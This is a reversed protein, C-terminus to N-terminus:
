KRSENEHLTLINVPFPSAGGTYMQLIIKGTLKVSDIEEESLQWMTSVVGNENMAPLPEVGEQNEGYVTNVTPFTIPRM